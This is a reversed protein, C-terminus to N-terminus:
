AHILGQDMPFGKGTYREGKQILQILYIYINAAYTRARARTHACTLFLQNQKIWKIWVSYGISILLSICPDSGSGFPDSGSGFEPSNNSQIM